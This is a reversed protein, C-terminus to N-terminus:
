FSFITLGIGPSFFQPNVTFQVLQGMVNGKTMTNVGADVPATIWISWDLQTLLYRQAKKPIPGLCTVFLEGHIELFDIAAGSGDTVLLATISTQRQWQFISAYSGLAMYNAEIFEPSPDNISLFLAALDSHPDDEKSFDPPHTSRWVSRCDRRKSDKMSNLQWLNLYRQYIM